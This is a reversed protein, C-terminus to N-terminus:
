EHLHWNPKSTLHRYWCSFGTPRVVGLERKLGAIQMPQIRFDECSYQLALSGLFKQRANGARNEEQSGIWGNARKERIHVDGKSTSQERPHLEGGYGAHPVVEM